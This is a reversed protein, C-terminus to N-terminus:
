KGSLARRITSKSVVHQPTFYVRQIEAISKGEQRLRLLEKRRTLRLAISKNAAAISAKRTVSIIKNVQSLSLNFLSSVTHKADIKEMPVSNKYFKKLNDLCPSSKRLTSINGLVLLEYVRFIDSNRRKQSRAIGSKKGGKRNRAEIKAPEKIIYTRGM